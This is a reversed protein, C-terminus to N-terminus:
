GVPQGKWEGGEEEDDCFDGRGLDLDEVRSGVPLLRM